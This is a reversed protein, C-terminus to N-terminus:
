RTVPHIKSVQVSTGKNNTFIDIFAAEYVYYRSHVELYYRGNPINFSLIIIFQICYLYVMRRHIHKLNDMISHSKSYHIMM